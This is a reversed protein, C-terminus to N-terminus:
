LIVCQQKCIFITVKTSQSCCVDFKFQEATDKDDESGQVSVYLADFKNSDQKYVCFSLLLSVSAEMHLPSCGGFSWCFMNDCKDANTM